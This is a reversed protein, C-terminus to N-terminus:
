VATLCMLGSWAMREWPMDGTVWPSRSPGGNLPGVMVSLLPM